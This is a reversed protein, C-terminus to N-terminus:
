RRQRGRRHLVFAAAAQHHRATITIGACCMQRQPPGHGTAAATNLGNHRGTQLGAQPLHQRLHHLQLVPHNWLPQIRNQDTGTQPLGAMPPVLPRLLHEADSTQQHEIGIADVTQRGTRLPPTPQQLPPPGGPERGMRGLKRPQKWVTSCTVRQFPRHGCGAAATAANQQLPRM